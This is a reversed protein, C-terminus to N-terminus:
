NTDVEALHDQGYYTRLMDVRPTTGNFQYQM